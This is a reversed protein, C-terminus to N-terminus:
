TFFSILQLNNKDYKEALAKALYKFFHNVDGNAFDIKIITKQIALQEPLPANKISEIVVDSSIMHWGSETDIEWSQYPLDKEELFTNFWKTFKLKESKYKRETNDSVWQSHQKLQEQTPQNM